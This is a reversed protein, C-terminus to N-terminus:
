PFCVAYLLPGNGAIDIDILLSCRFSTSLVCLAGAVQSVIRPTAPAWQDSIVTVEYGADLLAWAARSFLKLTVLVRLPPPSFAVYTLGIVGGGIVLIRGTSQCLYEPEQTLVLESSVRSLFYDTRSPKRSM